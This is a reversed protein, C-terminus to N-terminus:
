PAETPRDTTSESVDVHEKRLQETVRTQETTTEKRIVIRERVVVRKTIILEEELVPISISGDPLTEVEGSDADDAFVRDISAQERKRPVLETVRETEIRKLARFAGYEEVKGLRLEEEHRTVADDAPGDVQESGQRTEDDM